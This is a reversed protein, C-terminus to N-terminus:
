GEVKELPPHAPRATEHLDNIPMEGITAPALSAPWLWRSLMQGSEMMLSLM